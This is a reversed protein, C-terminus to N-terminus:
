TLTLTVGAHLVFATTIPLSYARPTGLSRLLNEPTAAAVAMRIAHRFVASQLNLNAVIRPLNSTFRMRWPLTKERRETAELGVPTVDGALQMAARLQGALADM